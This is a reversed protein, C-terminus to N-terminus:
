TFESIYRQGLMLRYFARKGNILPWRQYNTYNLHFSSNIGKTQIEVWLIFPVVSILMWTASVRLRETLFMSVKSYEWYHHYFHIPNNPTASFQKLRKSAKAYLLKAMVKPHKKIRLLRSLQRLGVENQSHLYLKIKTIIIYKSLKLYFVLFKKPTSIM